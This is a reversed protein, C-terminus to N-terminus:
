GVSRTETKRLGLVDAYDGDTMRAIVLFAVVCALLPVQNALPRRRHLWEDRWRDLEHWVGGATPGLVGHLEDRLLEFARAVHPDNVDLLHQQLLAAHELRHCRPGQAYAEGGVTFARQVIGADDLHGSSGRRLCGEVLTFALPGLLAHRVTADIAIQPPVLMGFLV